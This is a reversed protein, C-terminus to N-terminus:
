SEDDAPPPHKPRRRYQGSDKVVRQRFKATALARALPNRRTTKKSAPRRAKKM